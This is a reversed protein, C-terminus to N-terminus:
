CRKEEGIVKRLSQLARGHVYRVNRETMHMEEAIEEWTLYNTRHNEPDHKGFYRLHLVRLEEADKLGELSASIKQKLDVYADIAQNIEDQLDVIKAVATGIKDQNHSGGVVDSKVFSTIRTALDEMHALEELKNNIQTDYLRVQKLYVKVDM